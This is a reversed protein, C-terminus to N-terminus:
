PVEHAMRRGRELLACLETISNPSIRFAWRTRNGNEVLRVEVFRRPRVNSKHEILTVAYAHKANITVAGVPAVDAFALADVAKVDHHEPMTPRSSPLPNPKTSM